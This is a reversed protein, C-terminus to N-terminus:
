ATFDVRFLQVVRAEFWGRFLDQFVSNVSGILMKKGLWDVTERKYLLQCSSCRFPCGELRGVLRDTLQRELNSATADLRVVKRDVPEDRFGLFCTKKKKQM